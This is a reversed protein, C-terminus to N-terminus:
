LLFYDTLVYCIVQCIDKWLNRLCPRGPFVSVLTSPPFFDQVRICPIENFVFITPTFGHMIRRLSFFLLNERNQLFRSGNKWKCALTAPHISVETRSHIDLDYYKCTSRDDPCSYLKPFLFSSYHGSSFLTRVRGECAHKLVQFTTIKLGFHILYRVEAEKEPEFWPFNLGASCPNGKM